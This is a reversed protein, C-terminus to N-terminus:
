QVGGEQRAGSRRQRRRRAGSRGPLGHRAGGPVGTLRCSCRRRVTMSGPLKWFQAVMKSWQTQLHCACISSSSKLFYGEDCELKGPEDVEGLRIVQRGQLDAALCPESQMCEHFRSLCSLQAVPQLSGSLMCCSLLVPALSSSTWRGWCVADSEPLRMHPLALAVPRPLPGSTLAHLGAAMHYADELRGPPGARALARGVAALQM